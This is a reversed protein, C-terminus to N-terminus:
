HHGKRYQAWACRQCEGAAIRRRLESGDIGHTQTGFNQIPKVRMEIVRGKQRTKRGIAKRDQTSQELFLECNEIVENHINTDSTSICEEESDSYERDSKRLAAIRSPDIHCSEVGIVPSKTRQNNLFEQQVPHVSGTTAKGINSRVKLNDIHIILGQQLSINSSIWWVRQAL